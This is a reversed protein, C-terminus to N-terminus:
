DWFVANYILKRSKPDDEYGLDRLVAGCLEGETKNLVKAANILSDPKKLEQGLPKARYYKHSEDSYKDYAKTYNEYAIKHNDTVSTGFYWDGSEKGIRMQLAISLRAKKSEDNPDEWGSLIEHERKLKESKNKIERTDTQKEFGQWLEDYAKKNSQRSTGNKTKKLLKQERSTYEPSYSDSDATRYHKKGASTLTGDKNQYRRIGWKQGLIGHHSLSTSREVAYYNM